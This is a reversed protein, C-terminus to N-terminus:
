KAGGGTLFSYLRWYGDFGNERQLRLIDREGETLARHLAGASEGPPCRVQAARRLGQAMGQLWPWAAGHRVAVLGWLAQAVFICWGLRWLLPPPYHKAVLVIQNRAIARVVDAHWRGLTASGRHWGVADPVYCGAFGATACRLGFDVDELYSVFGEDFPGLRTFLETRFLAATASAMAIPRPASYQPGDPRGHGARYATGGRCVADFLGDIRQPTRADLLKGCAFWVRPDDLAASLRRLWHPDLEVDDNLIAVAETRAERIGCNVAAAFGRNSGMPLHRAGHRQALDICAGGAGNDVIVVDDPPQTQTRLSALLKELLDVRNWVPVIATVNM